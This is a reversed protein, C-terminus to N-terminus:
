DARRGRVRAPRGVHRSWIDHALLESATTSSAAVARARGCQGCSHGSAARVGLEPKSLQPGFLWQTSHSAQTKAERIFSCSTRACAAATSSAAVALASAASLAALASM